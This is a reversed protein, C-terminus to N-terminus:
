KSEEQPAPSKPSLLADAEDLLDGIRLMDGDIQVVDGDHCSGQVLAALRRLLGMPAEAKPAALAARAQWVAWAERVAGLTWDPCRGITGYGEQQEAWAEFEAREEAAAPRYLAEFAMNALGLALDEPKADRHLTVHNLMADRLANFGPRPDNHM